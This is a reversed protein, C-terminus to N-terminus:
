VAQKKLFVGSNTSWEPITPSFVFSDLYTVKVFGQAAEVMLIISSGIEIILVRLYAITTINVGMTKITTPIGPFVSQKPLCTLRSVGTISDRYFTGWFVRFPTLARLQDDNLHINWDITM